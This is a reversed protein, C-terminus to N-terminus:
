SASPKGPAQRAGVSRRLAITGIVAPMLLSISSPEPTPTPTPTYVFTVTGAGTLAFHDTLNGGFDNIGFDRLGTGTYDSLVTPDTVGSSVFAFPLGSGLAPFFLCSNYAAGCVFSPPPDPQLELDGGEEEPIGEGTYDTGGYLFWTM